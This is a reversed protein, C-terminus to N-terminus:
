TTVFPFTLGGGKNKLVIRDIDLIAIDPFAMIILAGDPDPFVVM